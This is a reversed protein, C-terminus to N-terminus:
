SAVPPDIGAVTTHMAAVATPIRDVTTAPLVGTTM